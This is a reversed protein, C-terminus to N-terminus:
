SIRRFRYMAQSPQLNNHYGNGGVTSTSGTWTKSAAFNVNWIGDLTGSGQNTNTPYEANGTHYFAGKFAETNATGNNYNFENYVRIMGTIEMNGRTHNHSASEGVTLKHAAEGYTKGAEFSYAVAKGDQTETYTGASITVYGAPMLEWTGGIYTGPNVNKESEIITGVPFRKLIIPAVLSELMDALVIKYVSWKCTGDNTVGNATWTPEVDSSTGATTCRAYYGAGMNATRTVDGVSYKTKPQWLTAGVLNQMINNQNETYQYMQAPTTPKASDDWNGFGDEKFRLCKEISM